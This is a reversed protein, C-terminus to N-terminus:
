RETKKLSTELDQEPTTIPRIDFKAVLVKLVGPTLFAPISPGLRMGKIGLSLLSLLVAVAKQEYWSIIFSLPLDNVGRGFASALAQAIRVASYADNCQGADLLRPIGGIAGFEMTNFRYKGCALTVIVCDGPVLEAFRTYYNRGPKAGDCGGILFFHRIAGSKVAAVVKDAIGLVAEHGFGVTITKGPHDEFGPLAKAKAIVESFDKRGGTPRDPIHAVGPWAVLGTTFIRDHYSGAPRQICNTTMLVAAPAAAFEKIQNQWATGFNGALHTHKKLAPYAHAPLMEGHTYINVGTGETQELLEKLDLLDHGSVIIAAGKRTGLSVPTPRPVGFRARHAQSLLEMTAINTKGCEMCLAVLGAAPLSHEALAALAHHIFDYITDLDYGLLHAHDAYAAMGKLGFLLLHELSKIDTNEPPGAALGVDAAQALLGKRDLAPEWEAAAPIAGRAAGASVALARALQKVRGAEAIMAEIRAPDFNVNTITSFLAKVAFVGTSRDRAGADAAGTAWWGIGMVGYVLLDQLAATEPDKGCVGQVTCGTGKATQECQYCFM